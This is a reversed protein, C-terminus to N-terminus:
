EFSITFHTESAAIRGQQTDGDLRAVVLAVQAQRMTSSLEEMYGYGEGIM